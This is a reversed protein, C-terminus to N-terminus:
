CLRFKKSFSIKILFDNVSKKDQEVDKLSKASMSTGIIDLADSTSLIDIVTGGDTEQAQTIAETDVLFYTGKDTIM